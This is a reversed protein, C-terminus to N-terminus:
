VSCAFKILCKNFNFNGMCMFVETVSLYLIFYFDWGVKGCNHGKLPLIRGLGSGRTIKETNMTEWMKRM